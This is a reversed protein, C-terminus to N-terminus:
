LEDALLDLVGKLVDRLRAVGRDLGAPMTALRQRLREIRDRRSREPEDHIAMSVGGSSLLVGIRARM